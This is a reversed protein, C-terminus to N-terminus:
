GLHASVEADVKAPDTFLHVRATDTLIAFALAVPTHAIDTGRINLLWAISDPMTLVAACQGSARLTRAVRARKDASQEGSYRMEQVTITGRPPPPRDTWIRDVLNDCQRLVIDHRDLRETLRAIQDATHLWADFGVIGGAPLTQVLWDGLDTEPWDVVAFHDTDVQARAQIRYRGDVFVAARDLLAACFGASGTFGSLWALREDREAVWEGQHADARPVLFGALGETKMVKRLAALRAPGDAPNTTAEFSQM